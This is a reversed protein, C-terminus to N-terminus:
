AGVELLLDSLFQVAAGASAGATEAVLARGTIPLANPTEIIVETVGTHPSHVRHWFASRDNHNAQRWRSNGTLNDSVRIGAKCRGSTLVALVLITGAASPSGLHVVIRSADQFATVDSVQVIV